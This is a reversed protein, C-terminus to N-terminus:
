VLGQALRAQQGLAGLLVARMLDLADVVCGDSLSCRVSAGERRATVLMRERLIKLHRSVTSQPVELAETLETM